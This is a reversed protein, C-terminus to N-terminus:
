FPKGQHTSFTIHPYCTAERFTITRGKHLIAVLRWEAHLLHWVVLIM